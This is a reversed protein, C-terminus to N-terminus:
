IELRVRKRKSETEKKYGHDLKRRNDDGSIKEEFERRREGM